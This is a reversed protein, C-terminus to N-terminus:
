NKPHPPIEMTMPEIERSWEISDDDDLRTGSTQCKISKVDLIGLIAIRIQPKVISYRSYAELEVTTPVRDVIVAWADSVKRSVGRLSGVSELNNVIFSTEEFSRNFSLDEIAALFEGPNAIPNPYQNEIVYEITQSQASQISQVKKAVFTASNRIGHSQDDDVSASLFTASHQIDNIDEIGLDISTELFADQEPTATPLPSWKSNCDEEYVQYYDPFKSRYRELNFRLQNRDFQMHHLIVGVVWVPQDFYNRIEFPCQYLEVSNTPGGNMPGHEKKLENCIAAVWLGLITNQPKLQTRAGAPHLHKPFLEEPLNRNDLGRFNVLGDPISLWILQNGPNSSHSGIQIVGDDRIAITVALDLSSPRMSSHDHLTRYEKLILPVKWTLWRGEVQISDHVVDNRSIDRSLFNIPLISQYRNNVWMKARELDVNAGTLVSLVIGCDHLAPCTEVAAHQEERPPVFARKGFTFYGFLGATVFVLAAAITVQWRWAAKPQRDCISRLDNRLPVASQYRDKQSVSLCKECIKSLLKPAENELQALRQQIESNISHQLASLKNGAFPRHGMLMEFLVVGFAWIDSQTPVSELESRLQEPAMYPLTGSFEGKRPQWECSRVSLGFDTIKANGSEDVIINAPKIDRHAIGKSHAYALGDAIQMALEIARQHTTRETEILESLTKGAVYEMVIFLQGKDNTEVDFLSVISPHTLKAILRAEDLLHNSDHLLFDDNSKLVKIAVIRELKTDYARYVKGMGGCGIVSEIRYRGLLSELSEAFESADLQQSRSMTDPPKTDANINDEIDVIACVIHQPLDPFRLTLEDLTPAKDFEARAEYEARLLEGITSASNTLEPWKNLYEEVLRQQGSKWKAEMDLKVIASLVKLRVATGDTPLLKEISVEQGTKLLREYKRIASEIARWEEDDPFQESAPDNPVVTM